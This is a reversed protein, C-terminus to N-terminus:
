KLALHQRRARPLMYGYNVALQWLEVLIMAALAGAVGFLPTLSLTAVLLIILSLVSQWFLERFVGYTVLLITGVNRATNVAFYCGWLLVLNSIDGYKEGFVYAILWPFAVFLAGLYALNFTEMVLTSKLVFLRIKRVESNAIMYGMAPRALTTWAMGVIVIPMLLLRAANLDALAAVGAIAGSFYLYSNNGLWGVVSGIVAWRSLSWLLNIDALYQDRKVGQGATQWLTSSFAASAVGNAIALLFFIQPTGIDDVLLLTTAGLITTVVFVLDMQAVADARSEIFLATRCYERSGQAFIFASFSLGLVAPSAPLDLLKVLGGVVFGALIALLGSAVWQIRAARAVFGGREDAPLRAALTTLASGILADLLTTTLLGAAFLQTYLGYTEKSAYRILALGILLNLGSLLAQDVVSAM